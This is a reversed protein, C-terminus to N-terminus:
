IAICGVVSCTKHVGARMVTAHQPMLIMNKGRIRLETSLRGALLTCPWVERHKQKMEDMARVAFLTACVSLCFSFFLFAAYMLPRLSFEINVFMKEAM